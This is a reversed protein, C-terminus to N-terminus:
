KSEAAQGEASKAEKSKKATMWCRKTCYHKGDRYYWRIKKISKNCQVCNTPTVKEAKVQDKVDAKGPADNKVEAQATTQEAAKPAEPSKTTEAPKANEAPTPNQTEKKEETM